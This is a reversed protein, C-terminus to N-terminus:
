SGAIVPNKLVPLLKELVMAVSIGRMCAEGLGPCRRRYCPQCTLSTRVVLHECGFPATREPSTPGFLSIYPTGVAAAVHGPGSDPGVAATGAKLLPFLDKVTTEAACNFVRQSAASNLIRQSMQKRSADGLLLIRYDTEALIRSVLGAYHPEPWDKSQWASGLVLAIFPGGMSALIGSAKESPSIYDLEFRPRGGDNLGLHSLFKLYHNIKPLSDPYFGIRENNFLWNFEKTNRRHFGIRRPAHSMLSFVGSKFHRQLDLCVDFHAANLERRLKLLASAGQRRDFVFVREISPNGHLIEAYRSDVLWSIKLDPRQSKIAPLICLGRTVDGLSGTLVLLVSANSAPEGTSRNGAPNTM